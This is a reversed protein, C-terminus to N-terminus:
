CNRKKVHHDGKAPRKGFEQGDGIAREGCEFRLMTLTIGIVLRSLEDRKAIGPRTCNSSSRLRPKASLPIWADPLVLHRLRSADIAPRQRLDFAFLQDGRRDCVMAAATPLSQSSSGRFLGGIVL